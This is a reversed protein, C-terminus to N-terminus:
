RYFDSSRGETFASSTRQDLVEAYSAALECVLVDCLSSTDQLVAVLVAKSRAPFEHLTEDLDYGLWTHEHLMTSLDHVQSAYSIPCPPGPRGEM